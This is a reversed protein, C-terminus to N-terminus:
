HDHDDGAGEEATTGAAAEVVFAATHVVGDHKFDLFLRYRGGSPVETGFEIEPGAPGVEPHVHLYALDAERLAVLHGFAGLYPELDAVPEGDRSVSLELMSHEGAALEGSMTVTYGDVEAVTRLPAPAPMALRGSVTVDGGLVLNEGGAPVFDAFLRWTGATLDLDTRWTGDGGQVPHVHQFGTLDRNVAVLHLLKDHRVEYETVPEGDPGLVKFGVPRTGAALAPTLM